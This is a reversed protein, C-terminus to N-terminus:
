YHIFVQKGELGLFTIAGNRIISSNRNENEGPKTLDIEKIILSENELLDISNSESGHPITFSIGINNNYSFFNILPMETKINFSTSSYEPGFIM